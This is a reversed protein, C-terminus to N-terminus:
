VTRFHDTKPPSSQTTPIVPNFTMEKLTKLGYLERLIFASADQDSWYNMHVALASLYANELVGEQIVYDLRGRPNLLEIDTKEPINSDETGSVPTMEIRENDITENSATSKTRMRDVMKNAGIVVNVTTGFLNNRVSEFMTKSKGLFDAQM